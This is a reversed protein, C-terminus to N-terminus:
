PKHGQPDAVWRGSCTPWARCVVGSGASGAPRSPWVMTRRAAEHPMGLGESGPATWVTLWRGHSVGSGRFRVVLARGLGFRTYWYFRSAPLQSVERVIGVPPLLGVIAAPGRAGARGAGLATLAGLVTLVGTVAAAALLAQRVGWLESLWGALGSTLSIALIALTDYVGFVRSAVANPTNRQISTVAIIEAVVTFLGAFFVAVAAFSLSPALALVMGWGVFLSLTVILWRFAHRAALRPAILMSTFAGVAFMANLWGIGTEGAALAREGMLVLAVVVFGYLANDVVALVMFTRVRRTRSIIRLGGMIASRSRLSLGPAAAPLHLRGLCALAAALCVVAAIGGGAVPAGLLLLLGLLGPGAVWGVNEIGTALTNATPLDDEDVLQPTAAALAPYGPTGMTASVATLAILAPVPWLLLFGATILAATVIRLAISWRLVASRSYRDALVGASTSFLVYPLFGLSVAASVWIGSGTMALAYIGVAMILQLQAVTALGHGLLMQMFPGSRLTSMYSM